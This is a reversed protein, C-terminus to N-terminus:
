PCDVDGDPVDADILYIDVLDDVCATRGYSTHGERDLSVLRADALADAVAVANEYPTAADGRNGVVLVTPGDAADVEGVVPDPAVPWTACPLLENAVAGGLHPVTSELDSAFAAYAVPTPPHPSDLCEVAVYATYGSLDRYAAALTTVGDADGDIADALADWLAPWLTPEYTAYISAVALDAETISATGDEAATRLADLQAVPDDLPCDDARACEALAEALTRELALAQSTLWETLPQTPDVVGDLVVTRAHEGFLDLYRLGLLSGYSFGVYNLSAEGLAMRLADLDRASDDTGLFALLEADEAGCEAAIAAAATDLATQEDPADPTPDLALFDAAGDGCTLDTSDAVGRPDWSVIDFRERLEASFPHGTLYRTGSAGPGGPNTFLVGVRDGDAADRRVSLDVTPGDPDSWDLPVVVVACDLGDAGPDDCREWEVPTPTWDGGGAVNDGAAPEIPPDVRPPDTACGGAIIATATVALAGCRRRLARTM